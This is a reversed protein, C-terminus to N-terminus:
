ASIIRIRTKNNSRAALFAAITCTAVTLVFVVTGHFALTDLAVYNRDILFLFLLFLSLPINVISLITLLMKVFISVPKFEGKTISIARFEDAELYRSCYTESQLYFICFVLPGILIIALGVLMGREFNLEGLIHLGYIMIPIGLSVRFLALFSERLPWKLLVVRIRM